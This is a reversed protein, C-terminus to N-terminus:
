ADCRCRSLRWPQLIELHTTSMEPLHHLFESSVRALGPAPRGSDASGMTGVALSLQLVM